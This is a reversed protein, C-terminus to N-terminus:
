TTSGIANQNNLRDELATIRRETERDKVGGTAFGGLFEAVNSREDDAQKRLGAYYQNMNALANMTNTPASPTMGYGAKVMETQNKVGSDFGRQFASQVNRSSGLM